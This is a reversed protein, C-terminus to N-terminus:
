EQENRRKMEKKFHRMQLVGAIIMPTFILPLFTFPNVGNDITMLVAFVLMIFVLIAQIVTLTKARTYARNLEIDSIYELSKKAM